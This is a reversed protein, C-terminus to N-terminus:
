AWCHQHENSDCFHLGLFLINMRRDGMLIMLSCMVDSGKKKCNHLYIVHLM